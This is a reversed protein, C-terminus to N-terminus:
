CAEMQPQSSAQRQADRRLALTISDKTTGLRDALQQPSAYAYGGYDRLFRVEEPIGPVIKSNGQRRWGHAPKGEPLDLQDDDWAAPPPWFRTGPEPVMPAPRYAIREYVSALRQCDSDPLVPAYQQKQTRAVRKILDARISTEQELANADWGRAM